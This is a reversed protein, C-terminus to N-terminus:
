IYCFDKKLLFIHLSLGVFIRVILNSYCDVNQFLQCELLVWKYHKGKNNKLLIINRGLIEWFFYYIFSLVVLVHLNINDFSFLNIM